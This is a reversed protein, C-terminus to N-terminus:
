HAKFINSYWIMSLEDIVDNFIVFLLYFIFKVAKVVLGCLVIRRVYLSGPKLM